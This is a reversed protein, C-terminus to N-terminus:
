RGQHLGTFGMSAKQAGSSYPLLTTNITPLSQLPWLSSMGLPLGALAVTLCPWPPQPRPGPAPLPHGPLGLALRRQVPRARRYGHQQGELVLAPPWGRLRRLPLHPRPRPTEPPGSSVLPESPLESTWLPASAQLVAGPARPSPRHPPPTPDGTHPPPFQQPRTGLSRLGQRTASGDTGQSMPM